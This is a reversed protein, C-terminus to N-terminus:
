VIVSWLMQLIKVILYLGFYIFPLILMVVAASNEENHKQQNFNVFFASLLVLDLMILWEVTNAFSQTYPHTRSTVILILLATTTLALQLNCVTLYFEKCYFNHKM